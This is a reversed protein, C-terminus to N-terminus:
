RSTADLQAEIAAKDIVSWVVAIKGDHFEYIVNESFSVRRGNVALGLFTGKPSCDFQLRSAVRSEDAVLLQIDFRLGAIADFDTELMRRYGALGIREGNYRVDEHVFRGLNSWDQANLCAIYRGYV